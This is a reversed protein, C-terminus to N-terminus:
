PTPLMLLRQQVAQLKSGRRTGEGAALQSLCQQDSGEERRSDLDILSLPVVLTVHVVKFAVLLVQVAQVLLLAIPPYQQVWCPAQQLAFSEQSTM